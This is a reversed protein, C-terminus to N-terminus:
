DHLANLLRQLQDLPLGIVNSYDGEIKEIFKAAIGQIAYAGAKDFPEGTKLYDEIEKESVDRFKVRTTEVHTLQARDCVRVMAVGTLVEHTRGSLLRLMRRADAADRPKGLIEKECFVTTDAGLVIANIEKMVAPMAAIAEAKSQALRRVYDAPFEQPCLTEDIHAPIVEFSFGANLLLEARRPSASALILRHSTFRSDRHSTDPANRANDPPM